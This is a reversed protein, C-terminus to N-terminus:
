KGLAEKVEALVREIGDMAVEMRDVINGLRRSGRQREGRVRRSRRVFGCASACRECVANDRPPPSRRFSGSHPVGCYSISAYAGVYSYAHWLTEPGQRRSPQAWRSLSSKDAAVRARTAKQDM